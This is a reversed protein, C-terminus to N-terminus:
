SKDEKQKPIIQQHIETIEASLATLLTEVDVFMLHQGTMPMELVCRVSMSKTIPSYEAQTRIIFIGNILPTKSM